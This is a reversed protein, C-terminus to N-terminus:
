VEGCRKQEKLREKILGVFSDPSIVKVCPGFSLVRIVIETEDTAYYKMHLLYKNDDVREAQKEFHAFHLMVRELANREDNIQLTLERIQMAEPKENWRGTGIYLQCNIIRGLNLQRYKCGDMIVRIKDDKESYEFGKPFFRLTAEKGYRNNLRAIIPLNNKIAYYILRFRGIYGEDGFDDGDSYKDYVKYDDETFLPELLQEERFQARASVYKVKEANLKGASLRHHEVLRQRVLLELVSDGVFALALPSLERPDIKEPENMSRDRREDADKGEGDNSRLAVEGLPLPLLRVTVNQSERQSLQRVAHPQSPM